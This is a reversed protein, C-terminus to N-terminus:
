WYSDDSPTRALFDLQVQTRLISIFGQRSEGMGVVALRRALRHHMEPRCIKLTRMYEAVFADQDLPARDAENKRRIFEDVPEKKEWM